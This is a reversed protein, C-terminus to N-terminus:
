AMGGANITVRISGDNLLAESSTFGQKRAELKSKEVAYRQLFEDLRQANGWRGNYNDYRIEGTEFKCVVPYKWDLLQVGCGTEESSFLQFTGHTPEALSLRQCAQKVAKFDRIQTTIQVVHSM